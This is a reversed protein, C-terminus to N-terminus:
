DNSLASLIWQGDNDVALFLCIIPINMSGDSV